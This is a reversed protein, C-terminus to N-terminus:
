GARDILRNIVVWGVLVLAGGFFIGLAISVIDRIM